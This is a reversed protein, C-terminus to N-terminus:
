NKQIKYGTYGGMFTGFTAFSTVSIGLKFGIPGLIAGGIIGGFIVPTYSFFYKDAINLNKNSEILTDNISSMNDEIRLLKDTQSYIVSNLNEQIQNIDNIGRVIDDNTVTEIDEEYDYNLKLKSM